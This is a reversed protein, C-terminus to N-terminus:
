SLNIYVQDKDLKSNTFVLVIIVIIVCSRRVTLEKYKKNYYNQIEM